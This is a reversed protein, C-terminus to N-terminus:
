LRCASREVAPPPPAGESDSAPGGRPPSSPILIAPGAPPGAGTSSWVSQTPTSRRRRPAPPLGRCRPVQSPYAPILAEVSTPRQAQKDSGADIAATVHAIQRQVIAEECRILARRAIRPPWAIAVVLGALAATRVDRRLTLPRAPRGRRGALAM